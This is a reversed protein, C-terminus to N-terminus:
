PKAANRNWFYNDGDPKCGTLCCKSPIPNNGCKNKAFWKCQKKVFDACFNYGRYEMPGNPSPGSSMVGLPECKPRTCDITCSTHGPPVWGPNTMDPVMAGTTYFAEWFVSTCLTDCSVHTDNFQIQRTSLATTGGHDACCLRQNPSCPATCQNYGWCGNNFDGAVCNSPSCDPSPSCSLAGVCSTAPYGGIYSDCSITESARNIVTWAVLDQAGKSEGRSENYVIEALNTAAPYLIGYVRGITQDPDWMPYESGPLLCTCAASNYYAVRCDDAANDHSWGGINASCTATSGGNLGVCSWTWPGTGSVASATGASCLNSTPASVFTGGNASGCKGDIRKGGAAM